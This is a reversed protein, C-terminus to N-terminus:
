RSKRASKNVLSKTAEQIKQKTEDPLQQIGLCTKDSLKKNLLPILYNKLKNGSTYDINGFPNKLINDIDV